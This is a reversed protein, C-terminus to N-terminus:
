FLCKRTAPRDHSKFVKNKVSTERNQNIKPFEAAGGWGWAGLVPSKARRRSIRAQDVSGSVPLSLGRTRAQVLHAVETEMRRWGGPGWTTIKNICNDAPTAVPIEYTTINSYQYEFLIKICYEFGM